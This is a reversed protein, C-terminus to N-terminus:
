PYCRDVFVSAMYVLSQTGWLPWMLLWAFVTNNTLLAIAILFAMFAIEAKREKYFFLIKSAFESSLRHLRAALYAIYSGLALFLLGFIPSDMISSVGMSLFVGGSFVLVLVLIHGLLRLVNM